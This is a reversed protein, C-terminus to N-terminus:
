SCKGNQTNIQPNQFGILELFSTLQKKANENASELIGAECAAARISLEANKRAASELEKDGKSLLGRSRDYVRTKSNDINTFFIEPAPLGVKISDGSISVDSAKIQTMDIGAIVNGHAILLIQDGYLIEQFINGQTGAEIIKEITFSSTELRGLQQIDKIVATSSNDVVIPSRFKLPQFKNLALFGISGFILIFLIYKLNALKMSYIRDHSIRLVIQQSNNM